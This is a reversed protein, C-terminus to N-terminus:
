PLQQPFAKVEDNGELSDWLVLSIRGMVKGSQAPPRVECGKLCWVNSM